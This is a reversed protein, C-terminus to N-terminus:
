DDNEDNEGEYNIKIELQFYDHEASTEEAIQGVYSSWEDAVHPPIHLFHTGVSKMVNRNPEYGYVAVQISNVKKDKKM